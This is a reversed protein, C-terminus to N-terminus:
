LNVNECMARAQQMVLEIAIKSKDPPYGYKALLRRIVQRMKAQVSERIWWDVSMENKIAKTLERAIIRLNAGGLVDIASNNDALADYFAIEDDTLGSETGKNIGDNITKALEILELIVQTTEVTRNQYKKLSAELRESFKRSQIMNKRAISKVKGALLKNLLEVALNKQPLARVEELFEDSLIAINQKDLGAYGFIDIM